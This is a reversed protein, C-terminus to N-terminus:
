FSIFEFNNLKILSTAIAAPSLESITKINEIDKNITEANILILNIYAIKKRPKRIIKM